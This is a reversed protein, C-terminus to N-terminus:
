IMGVVVMKNIEDMPLCKGGSNVNCDFEGNMGACGSLVVFLAVFMNLFFIKKM